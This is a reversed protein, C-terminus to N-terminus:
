TAARRRVSEEAESRTFPRVNREVATGIKASAVELDYQAQLNQWLQASTGFYRAFRLAMEATVARRRRVIDSVTPLSVGIDKAVRYASLGLPELFEHKLIDGPHVPHLKRPPM